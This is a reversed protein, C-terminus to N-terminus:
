WSAYGSEEYDADDRPTYSRGGVSYTRGVRPADDSVPARYEPAPRSATTRPEPSGVCSALMLGALVIEAPLRM